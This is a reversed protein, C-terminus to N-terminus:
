RRGDGKNVTAEREYRREKIKKETKEVDTSRSERVRNIEKERKNAKNM